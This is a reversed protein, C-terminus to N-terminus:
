ANSRGEFKQNYLATLHSRRQEVLKLAEGADYYTYALGPWWFLFAAANTGTLGKKSNIEQEAQNLRSLEAVIQQKSMTNDGMQVVQTKPSTSCAALFLLCLGVSIRKVLKM